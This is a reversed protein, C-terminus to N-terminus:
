LIRSNEELTKSFDKISEYSKNLSFNVDSIENWLCLSPDKISQEFYAKQQSSSTQISANLKALNSKNSAISKQLYSFCENSIQNIIKNNQKLYISEQDISKNLRQIEWWLKELWAISTTSESYCTKIQSIVEFQDAIALNSKIYKTLNQDLNTKEAKTLEEKAEMIRKNAQFLWSFNNWLVNQYALLTKITWRNYYSIADEGTLLNLAANYDGEELLNAVKIQNLKKILNKSLNNYVWIDKDESTIISYSSFRRQSYAICLSLFFIFLISFFIALIKNRWNKKNEIPEM